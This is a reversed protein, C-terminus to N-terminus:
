WGAPATSSRGASYDVAQDFWQLVAEKALAASDTRGQTVDAGDPAMVTWDFRSEGDPGISAWYGAMLDTQEDQPDDTGASYWTLEM